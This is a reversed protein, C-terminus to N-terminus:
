FDDRTRKKSEPLPIGSMKFGPLKQHMHEFLQSVHMFKQDTPTTSLVWELVDRYAEQRGANYSKDLTSQCERYLLTLANASTTFTAQIQSNSDM